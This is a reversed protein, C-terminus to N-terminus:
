HNTSMDPQKIFGMSVAQEFIGNVGKMPDFAMEIAYKSFKRRKLESKILTTLNDWDIVLVPIGAKFLRAENESEEPFSPHEIDSWEIVEIVTRDPRTISNKRSVLHHPMFFNKESKDKFKRILLIEM